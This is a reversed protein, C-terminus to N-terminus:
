LLVINDRHVLQRTKGRGAGPSNAAVDRFRRGILERAEDSAFNAIGRAFESGDEDVISVIEGARFSEHVATVGAFLLSAGRHVIADRAGANVVVSGAVATAFAIWSKRSSLPKRALFLTGIDDGALVRHIVNPEAGRAIVALTGSATAVRAARIKTRMGGRGRDSPGGAALLELQPSIENVVPIREVDDRSGPDGTYLGDVNSLMILLDARLKSAVLASLVDNDGFVTSSDGTELRTEIESTSVTDNENVIPVSGLQVLRNLTNRLNLYRGRDAFDGETLLVQSATIGFADLAQQFVTMLRIQGIAACAQKTDLAEPRTVLKLREMGLSIAGSSVLIVELGRRHADVVEEVLSHVRGSALEGSERCLVNTGLKVVIRRVGGLCARPNAEFQGDLHSRASEPPEM